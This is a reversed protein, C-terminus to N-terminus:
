NSTKGAMKCLNQGSIGKTSLVGADEGSAEKERGMHEVGGGRVDKKM